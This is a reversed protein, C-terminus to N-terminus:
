KDTSSVDPIVPNNIILYNLPATKKLFHTVQSTLVNAQQRADLGYRILM